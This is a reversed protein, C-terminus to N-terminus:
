GFEFGISFELMGFGGSENPETSRQDPTNVNWSEDSLETYSGALLGLNFFIGSERRWRHGLQGALVVGLARGESNGKGYPSWVFEGLGGAYWRNRSEPSGLFARYGGGVGLQRAKTDDWIAHMLAGLGQMRVHLDLYGDSGAPAEVGLTPGFQLFGLPNLYITPGFAPPAQDPFGPNSLPDGRRDSQRECTPLQQANLVSRIPLLYVTALLLLGPVIRALSCRNM